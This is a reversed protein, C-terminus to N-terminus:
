LRPSTVNPALPNPYYGLGSIEVGAQQMCLKGSLVMNPKLISGELFVRQEYLAMYVEKLTWETVEFCRYTM